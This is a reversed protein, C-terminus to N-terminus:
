GPAPLSVPFEEGVAPCSREGGLAKWSWGEGTELGKAKRSGRILAGTLVRCVKLQGRAARGRVGGGWTGAGLEFESTVLRM